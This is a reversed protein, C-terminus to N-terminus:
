KLYSIPLDPVRQSMKPTFICEKLGRLMLFKSDGRIILEVGLSTRSPPQVTSAQEGLRVALTVVCHYKGADALQTESFYLRGNYSVFQYTNLDTRLFNAGPGKFWAYSADSYFLPLLIIFDTHTQHFFQDNKAEPDTLFIISSILYLDLLLFVFM